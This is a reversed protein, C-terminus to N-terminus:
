LFLDVTDFDRKRKNKTEALNTCVIESAHITKRINNLQQEIQIM